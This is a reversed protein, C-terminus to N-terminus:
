FVNKILIQSNKLKFKSSKEGIVIKEFFGSMKENPRIDRIKNLFGSMEPWIRVDPLGLRDLWVIIQKM